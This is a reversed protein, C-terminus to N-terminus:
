LKFLVKCIIGYNLGEPLYTCNYDPIMVFDMNNKILDNNM